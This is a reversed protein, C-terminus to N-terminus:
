KKRTKPIPPRQKKTVPKAADPITAAVNKTKQATENVNLIADAPKQSFLKAYKATLNDPLAAASSYWTGCIFLAGKPISDYPVMNGEYNVLKAMAIEKPRTIEATVKRGGCNCGM